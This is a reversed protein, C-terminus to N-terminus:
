MSPKQPDLLGVILMVSTFTLQRLISDDRMEEALNDSDSVTGARQDIKDWETSVKRDLQQFLGVLLPRLFHDRLPAPCHYIIPRIMEVLIAMQHTSLACANTFLAQSLPEPLEPNGYFDEGLLSLYYFEIVQKESLGYLRVYLRLWAKSPPRRGVSRPM